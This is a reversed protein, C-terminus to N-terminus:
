IMKSSKHFRPTNCSIYDIPNLMDHIPWNLFQVSRSNVVDNFENIYQVRQYDFTALQFDAQFPPKLLFADGIFLTDEMAM